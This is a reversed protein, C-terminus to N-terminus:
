YKLELKHDIADIHTEGILIVQNTKAADVIDPLERKVGSL